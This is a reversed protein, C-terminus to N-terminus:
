FMEAKYLVGNPNHWLKREREEMTRSGQHDRGGNRLEDAAFQLAWGGDCVASLVIDKDHRLEKPEPQSSPPGWTNYDFHSHTCCSKLFSLMLIGLTRGWRSTRPIIHGHRPHGSLGVVGRAAFVEHTARGDFASYGHRPHGRPVVVCRAATAHTDELFSWVALLSSELRLRAVTSTCLSINVHNISM